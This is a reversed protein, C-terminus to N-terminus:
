WQLEFQGQGEAENLTRDVSSDACSEICQLRVVFYRKATAKAKSKANRCIAIRSM